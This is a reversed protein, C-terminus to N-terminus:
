DSVCNRIEAFLVSMHAVVPVSDQGCACSTLVGWNSVICGIVIDLESLSATWIRAAGCFSAWIQILPWGWRVEYAPGWEQCLDRGCLPSLAHQQCVSEAGPGAWFLTGVNTSQFFGVLSVSVKKKKGREETHNQQKGQREGVREGQNLAASCRGGGERVTTASTIRESLEDHALANHQRCCGLKWVTFGHGCCCVQGLQFGYKSSKLVNVIPSKNEVSVIFWCWSLCFSLFRWCLRFLIEDQDLEIESVSKQPHQYKNSDTTWITVLSLNPWWQLYRFVTSMM